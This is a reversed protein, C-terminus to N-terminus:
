QVDTVVTRLSLILALYLYPYTSNKRESVDCNFSRGVKKWFLSRQNEIIVTPLILVM